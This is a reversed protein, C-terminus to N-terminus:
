KFTYDAGAVFYVGPNRYGLVEIIRRDLANQVRGYLDLRRTVHYRGFLDLRAYGPAWFDGAWRLRHDTAFLNAGLDFGSRSYTLGLNGMNRANQIMLGWLGGNELYADTRTYNGTLRWHPTIRWATEFEVGQTREAETNAYEGYPSGDIIRPNYIGYDFTIVNNVYSHWYTLSETLAGDLERGRLGAEMTSANEPTVGKNGYLPDYLQGLTPQTFSTGYNAYFALARTLQYTAGLSYTVKSKWETYSDFRAGLETHLRNALWGISADAYVSRVAQSEHGGSFFGAYDASQDYVQGLYTAGLLASISGTRYRINYDAERNNNVIKYTYPTQYVPVPQGADYTLYSNPDTWGNYPALYTGLLGGNAVAGDTVGLDQGAWGVTLKQSLRSTLRERVWLSVIGAKTADLNSPDPIQVSFYPAPADPISEILNTSQFRNDTLYFSGGLEMGRTDYTARGVATGNKSFEFENMGNSRLFSGNLSARLVGEGLPIKDGIGVRAKMWDLSGGELSVSAQPRDAGLTTFDIVGATTNAGYTTARPGRLVQISGVMSPDLQGLLYGVDGSGGTNMVIGDFVYLTSDSLGRLRAYMFQGPPGAVEFQIGPQERLVEIVSTQAQAAIDAATVVESAQTMDRQTINLKTATVTVEELTKASRQEGSRPEEAPTQALVPLRCACVAMAVLALLGRGRRPM